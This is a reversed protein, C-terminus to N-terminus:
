LLIGNHHRNTLHRSIFYIKESDDMETCVEEVERESKKLFEIPNEKKNGAFGIKIRDEELITPYVMMQAPRKRLESHLKEVETKLKEKVSILEEDRQQQKMKSEVIQSEINTANQELEWTKKMKVTVTEKVDQLKREPENQMVSFKENWHECIQKYTEKIETKFQTHLEKYKNESRVAQSHIATQVKQELNDIKTHTENIIDEKITTIKDYLEESNRTLETTM